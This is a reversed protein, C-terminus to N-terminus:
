EDELHIQFKWLQYPDGADCDTATLDSTNSVREATLCLDFKENKLLRLQSNSGVREYNWLQYALLTDAESKTSHSEYEPEICEQLRIKIFKRNGEHIINPDVQDSLDEFDEKKSLKKVVLCSEERRIQKHKSLSFLQNAMVDIPHNMTQCTYLGAPESKTEQRNLTDICQNTEDNKIYGYAIVNQDYIYKRNEYVNELYWKFSKCKLKKRLELRASLDGADLNKLDPRSLFFYRKYEDMWALVTRLTNYGHSDIGNFSYPHFDRFIHGVRSCPHIEIRGGCQWVRFSMELNEGGWIKMDEDYSGIEFFYKRDVAFLGGAMTPTKVPSVPRKMAESKRRNIWTFHGTWDFGGLQFMYPDVSHYELTKDSIIDIVPSVFVKRDDKIRQLLPEAWNKTCECHSDLFLLVDGVAINAGELRAKILGKRESFRILKVLDGDRKKVDPEDSDHYRPITNWYIDIYDRLTDGLSEKTSHDDVLIVEKLLRKPTRNIVSWVTRILASFIEDTFIVIVSVNPLEDTDYKIDHCEKPAVEQLTRNPSIRDSIYVNYAGDKFIKAAKEKEAETKLVVGTGNEGWGPEVPLLDKLKEDLLSKTKAVRLQLKKKRVVSSTQSDTSPPSTNRNVTKPAEINNLLDLPEPSVQYPPSLHGHKHDRPDSKDQTPKNPRGRNVWSDSSIERGIIDNKDVIFLSRIFLLIYVLFASSLMLKVISWKNRRIRFYSATTYQNNPLLSELVGSQKNDNNINIMHSPTM